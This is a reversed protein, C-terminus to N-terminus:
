KRRRFSEWKCRLRLAGQSLRDVVQSGLLSNAEAEDAFNATIITPRKMRWRGDILRFLADAQFDSMSSGPPIPDSLVLVDALLFPGITRKEETSSKIADRLQSRFTSVDLWRASARLRIVAERAIAIALHDKGTGPPGILFAGNGAEVNEEINSVFEKVAAIAKEQEPDYVEFTNITAAKFPDLRLGVDGKLRLLKRVIDDRVKAKEEVARKEEAAAIEEPTREPIAKLRSQLADSFSSAFKIEEKAKAADREKLGLETRKEETIKRLDDFTTEGAPTNVAAKKRGGKGRGAM